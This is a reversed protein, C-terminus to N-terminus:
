TFLPPLSVITERGSILRKWMKMFQRLVQRYLSARATSITLLMTKRLRKFRKGIKVKLRCIRVRLSSQRRRTDAQELIKNILFQARRHKREEPDEIELKSYAYPKKALSSM